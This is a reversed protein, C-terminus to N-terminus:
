AQPSHGICQTLAYRFADGTPDTNIPGDSAEPYPSRFGTRPGRRPGGGPGGPRPSGPPEGPPPPPFNGPGPRPARPAGRPRGPVGEPVGLIPWKQAKKPALLHDFQVLFGGKQPAEQPASKPEGPPEGGPPCFLACKKPYKIVRGTPVTQPRKKWGGNQAM